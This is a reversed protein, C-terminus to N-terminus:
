SNESTWRRAKRNANLNIKTLPNSSGRISLSIHNNSVLKIIKAWLDQDSTETSFEHMEIYEKNWEFAVDDNNAYFVLEVEDGKAKSDILTELFFILGYLVLSHSTVQRNIWRPPMQMMGGDTFVSLTYAGNNEQLAVGIFVRIKTKMGM